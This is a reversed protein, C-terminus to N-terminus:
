HCSCSCKGGGDFSECRHDAIDAGLNLCVDIQMDKDQAGEDYAATLCNDCVVTKPKSTEREPHVIHVNDSENVIDAIKGVQETAGTIDPNIDQDPESEGNSKPHDEASISKRPQFRKYYGEQGDSYHMPMILAYFEQDQCYGKVEIPKDSGHIMLQISTGKDAFKCIDALFAPNLSIMVGGQVQPCINEYEPYIDQIDKDKVPEVFNEGARLKGIEVIGGLNDFEENGTKEIAHLRFGDCGVIEGNVSIRELIPRSDRDKSTAAQVFQLKKSQEKDLKIINQETM